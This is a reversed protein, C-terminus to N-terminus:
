GLGIANELIEIRGQGDVLAVDFRTESLAGRSTTALFAEASAYIRAVQRPSLRAAATAFSRSHKVEVFVLQTDKQLILDIEGAASKWREAVARYGLAQYHRLVSHEAAAGAHYAMQGKTYRPPQAM